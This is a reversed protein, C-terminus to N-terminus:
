NIYDLSDSYFANLVDEYADHEKLFEIAGKSIGDKKLIEDRSDKELSFSIITLLLVLIIIKM